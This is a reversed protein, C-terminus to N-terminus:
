MDNRIGVGLGRHGSHIVRGCSLQQFDHAACGTMLQRQDIAQTVNGRLRFPRIVVFDLTLSGIRESPGELPLSIM